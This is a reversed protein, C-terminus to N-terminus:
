SLSKITTQSNAKEILEQIPKLNSVPVALNKLQTRDYQFVRSGPQIPIAGRSFEEHSITGCYIIEEGYLWINSWEDPRISHTQGRSPCTIELLAEPRHDPHLSSLSYLPVEVRMPQNPYLCVRQSITEGSGVLGNIEVALTTGGSYTLILPCMPIWNTPQRWNKPLCHILYIPKKGKIDQSLEDSTNTVRAPFFAFVYVNRPSVGEAVHEDSSVLAEAELLIKQNKNVREIQEHKTILYTQLKCRQGALFVDYREHDTFSIESNVHFPVSRDTLTRRFALEAATTAAIRRLRDILLAGGHLQVFPLSRVSYTVGAEILEPTQAIVIFDTTTIM